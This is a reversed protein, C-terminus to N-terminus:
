TVTVTRKLLNYPGIHSHSHGDCKVGSDSDAASDSDCAGDGSVVDSDSHTKTSQITWIASDVEDESHCEVGSFSDAASDSDCTGEDKM